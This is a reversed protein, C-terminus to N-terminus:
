SDAGGRLLDFGVGVALGVILAGPVILVFDGVFEAPGGMRVIVLEYGNEGAMYTSVVLFAGVAWAALAFWPAGAQAPDADEGRDRGGWYGVMLGCFALLSPLLMGDTRRVYHFALHNFLMWGEPTPPGAEADRRATVLAERLEALTLGHPPSFFDPGPDLVAPAVVNVMVFAAASTAIALGSFAALGVLLSRDTDFVDPASQIGAPYAAVIFAFGLWAPAQTVATLLSGSVATVTLLIAAIILTWLFLARLYRLSLTMM